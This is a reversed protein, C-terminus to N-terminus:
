QFSLFKKGKKQVPEVPVEATEEWDVVPQPVFYASLPHTLIHAKCADTDDLPVGCVICRYVYKM